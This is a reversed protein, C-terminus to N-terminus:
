TGDDDLWNDMKRMTLSGTHTSVDSPKLDRGGGKKRNKFRNPCGFNDLVQELNTELDILFCNRICSRFPLPKSVLKSILKSVKNQCSTDATFGDDPLM